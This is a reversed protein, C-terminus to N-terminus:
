KVQGDEENKKKKGKKYFFISPFTFGATATKMPDWGALGYKIRVTINQMCKENSSSYMPRIDSFRWFPVSM